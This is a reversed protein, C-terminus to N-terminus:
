SKQFIFEQTWESFEISAGLSKSVFIERIMLNSIKLKRYDRTVKHSRPM